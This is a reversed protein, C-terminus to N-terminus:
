CVVGTTGSGGDVTLPMGSFYDELTEGAAWVASPLLGLTLILALLLCLIRKTKQM